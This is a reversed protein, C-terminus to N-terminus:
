LRKQQFTWLRCSFFGWGLSEAAPSGGPLALVSLGGWGTSGFAEAILPLVLFGRDWLMLSSNYFHCVCGFGWAGM